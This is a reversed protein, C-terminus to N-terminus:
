KNRLPLTRVNWWTTAALVVTAILSLLMTMLLSHPIDLQRAIFISPGSLGNGGSV